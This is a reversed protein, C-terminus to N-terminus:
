WRVYQLKESVRPIPSGSFRNFGIESDFNISVLRQIMIWRALRRIMILQVL